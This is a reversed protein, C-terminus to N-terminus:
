TNDREESADTGARMGAPLGKDASSMILLLPLECCCILSQHKLTLRTPTPTRRLWFAVYWMYVCVNFGFFVLM